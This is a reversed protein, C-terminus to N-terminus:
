KIDKKLKIIGQGKYYVPAVLSKAYNVAEPWNM